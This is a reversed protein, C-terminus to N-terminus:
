FIIASFAFHRRRFISGFARYLKRTRVFFNTRYVMQTGWGVSLFSLSQGKIYWKTFVVYLRKKYGRKVKSTHERGGGGGGIALEVVVSTHHVLHVTHKLEKEAQLQSLVEAFVV